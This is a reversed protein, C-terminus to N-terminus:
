VEVDAAVGEWRMLYINVDTYESLDTFAQITYIEGKYVAKTGIEIPEVTLLKKEKLTYVGSEVYNLAEGVSKSGAVLPLIIGTMEVERSPSEVWKGNVYSGDSAVLAIFPVGNQKIVEAFIMKEPM